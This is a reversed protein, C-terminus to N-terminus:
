KMPVFDEGGGRRIKLCDDCLRLTAVANTPLNGELQYDAAPDDGCVSCVDSSGTKKIVLKTHSAQQPNFSSLAEFWETSHPKLYLAMYRHGIKKGDLASKFRVDFAYRTSSELAGAEVFQTVSM